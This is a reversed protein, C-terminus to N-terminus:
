NGATVIARSARGSIPATVRTFSLNLEALTLAAHIGALRAEAVQADAVYREVEERSTANRELLREARDRYSRALTLEAEAREREAVLRDVEAQFPRADIQFLLDGAAVRSGEDFHVSEVLGAVRARVDVSEVAELRGTFDAWDRLEHEEVAATTVEAAPPATPGDEAEGTGCAALLLATPLVILAAALNKPTM